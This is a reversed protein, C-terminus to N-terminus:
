GALVEANVAGAAPAAGARLRALLHGLQGAQSRREFRSVDRDVNSPWSGNRHATLMSRLAAAVADSDGAPALTAGGASEVITRLEGPPVIALIPRSSALYEFTKAPVWRDAGTTDELLLCLADASRMLSVAGAHDVYDHLEIRCALSRARELAAAQEPTRRGAVILDVPAVLSPDIRQLTELADLVPVISMLSWLTGTYVLRFRAATAPPPTREFDAADYGNYICAAEPDGGARRAADRVSGASAKTTALVARSGRLAWNEMRQQVFRTVRGPRRNEYHVNSLSWEDRYDLILPLGSREALWRGVLFCSFPPGTAVIADHPVERLLRLGEACAAPAWLVQADPQLVARGARALSGKVAQALSRKAGGAAAKLGYGPEWTRARIVRTQPPVDQSLSEDWVPVSGGKVTLVSCEWGHEPLYKVFKTTRQVGAGGIPPFTYAVFLVRHTM